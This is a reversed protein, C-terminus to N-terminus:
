FLSAGTENTVIWSTSAQSSITWEYDYSLAWFCYGRLGLAQAFGIKVTTTLPDDYGVWNIGSYSYVSATDLDYEITANARRNFEVVLSYYLVGGGIGVDVAAAGVGHVKSDKLQWTKGYLPLGLIVKNQPVGAKLWSKLGYVSSLNTNPDFLAAHAGTESTDWSGHFEYCMVNIWDLNNKISAVPYSRPGGGLASFNVSYYVAASLLLPPRKTINAEMQIAHRWEELLFGLDSMEKPSGPYEWDLDVGDFGCRRAVEITERIFVGRSSANAAM